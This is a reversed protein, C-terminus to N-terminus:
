RVYVNRLNTYFAGTLIFLAIGGLITIVTHPSDLKSNVISFVIIGGASLFIFMLITITVRLPLPKKRFNEFWARM